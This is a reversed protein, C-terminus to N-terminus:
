NRKESFLGYVHGPNATAYLRYLGQTDYYVLCANPYKAQLEPTYVSYIDPLPGVGNYLYNGM